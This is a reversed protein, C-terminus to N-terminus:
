IIDVHRIKDINTSILKNLDDFCKEYVSLGKDYPDDINGKSGLFRSVISAKNKFQDPISELLGSDMVLILDARKLLEFNAKLTKHKEISKDLKERIVQKAEKSAYNSSCEYLGASVSRIRQKIKSKELYYRTIANAMACRCTGGASIFLLVYDNAKIKAGFNDVLNEFIFQCIFLPIKKDLMDYGNSNDQYIVHRLHRLDFPIDNESQSLIIVDKGIAHAIGLEYLVNPNRGTIDALIIRSEYINKWVDQMINIGYLDDARLCTMGFDTIIKRIHKNWIRDSWEESFPMLVFCQNSKPEFCQTDFFLTM